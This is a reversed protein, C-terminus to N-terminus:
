VGYGNQSLNKRGRTTHSWRPRPDLAHELWQMGEGSSAATATSTAAAARPRARVHNTLAGAGAGACHWHAQAHSQAGPATTHGGANAATPAADKSASPM